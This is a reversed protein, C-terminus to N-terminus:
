KGAERNLVDGWTIRQKQGVGKATYKAMLAIANEVEALAPHKWKRLETTTRRLDQITADRRRIMEGSATQIKRPIHSFGLKYQADADRRIKLRHKGILSALKALVWEREFPRVLEPQGDLFEAAVSRSTAKPDAEHGATRIAAQFEELTTLKAM